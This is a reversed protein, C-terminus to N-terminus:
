LTYRFGQQGEIVVIGKDARGNAVRYVLFNKGVHLITVAQTMIAAIMAPTYEPADAQRFINSAIIGGIAGGGIILASAISRKSQGVINNHMYSLITPVNSNCGCVGLFVGAYRAGPSSRIFGMMAVGVIAASANLILVLGRKRYRDAFWATSLMWPAAAVYPPFSLIQAMTTSYGMDGSLILPLFFGFSYTVVNNLLYLWAKHLNLTDVGADGRARDIRAKILDAEEPTLFPRRTVLQPQTSRDPFDVIFIYGMIGLCITILGQQPANYACHDNLMRVVPLLSVMIFIWRWGNLGGVGKMLSLALLYFGSFRKQVEFRCYWCSLLFICGPYFGSQM